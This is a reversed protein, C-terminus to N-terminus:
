AQIHKWTKGSSIYSINSSTVDFVKAIDAHSIGAKIMKLITIVKGDTLKASGNLEGKLMRNKSISDRINDLATGAILHEPNVCRRVDCIHLIHLGKPIPGNHIEYSFRHANIPGDKRSRGLNGYGASTAAGTWLWCKDTKDVFKWFRDEIPIPKPGTTCHSYM